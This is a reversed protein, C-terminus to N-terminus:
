NRFYQDIDFYTPIIDTKGWVAFSLPSEFAQAASNKIDKLTVRDIENCVDDLLYPKGYVLTQRGIDECRSIRNELNISISSKLFSKARNIEEDTAKFDRYTKMFNCLCETLNVGYKTPCIGHIGVLGTTDFSNMFHKCHRMFFYESLAERYLRSYMGKGPGGSSFSSGGGMLANLVSMPFFDIYNYLVLLFFFLLSFFLFSSFFFLSHHSFLSIYLYIGKGKWSGGKLAILIHTTKEDYIKSPLDYESRSNGGVYNLNMKELNRKPESPLKNFYKKVLNVMEDHDVGVASIVTRPATYTSKYFSKCNDITLNSLVNEAQFLSHGYPTNPSFSAEFIYEPAIM